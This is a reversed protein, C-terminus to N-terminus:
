TLIIMRHEGIIEGDELEVPAEIAAIYKGDPSIDAAIAAGETKYVWELRSSAGGKKELNLVYVGHSRADKTLINKGVALVVYKNDLSIPIGRSYGEVKYNWSFNGQRDYAILSTSNPHEMPAKDPYYTPFTYGTLYLVNEGAIIASDGYAYIPIKAVEIPAAVDVRWEYSDTRSANENNFFFARGDSAMATINGDSVAIGQWVSASTFYPKLPRITHSWKRNADQDISYITADTGLSNTWDGAAYVITKGDKSVDLWNISLFYNNTPPMKWKLNGALDFRYIRSVLSYQSKKLYRSAAVYMSNDAVKIRSIVPLYKADTGLIGSTGYKWQEDGSAADFSYINADLSREGVFLQRSDKSFALTSINGNIKKEWVKSGQLDFIRIFGDNSGLAIIKGDPSFKVSGKVNSWGQSINEPTIDELKVEKILLTSASGSSYASSSITGEKSAIEIDYRTDPMWQFDHYFDSATGEISKRIITGNGTITVTAESIAGTTKIAIGTRTFIVSDITIEKIGGPDSALPEFAGNQQNETKPQAVCGSIVALILILLIWKKM